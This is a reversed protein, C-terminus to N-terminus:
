TKRGFDMNLRRMKHRLTSPNVGLLRAAGSDGNIKGGTLAVATSIHNTIVRNLSMLKEGLPNMTQPVDSAEPIRDQFRLPGKRDLILTREVLNELERVNGPWPYDSLREIEGRAIGPCIPLGMLRSKKSIFHYLLDPIDACRDRLPPVSVPFVNIRYFLDERFKGAKVMQLLDRHTAIILRVNVKITQSGGIREIEKEQIVRLLKIQAALPLEGIEDLFLTGGQAREFRGRYTQYAGTFSGKEHGFLESDILTEPISGCNVKIFPQIRRKSQNHIATAIVEKGVGTEGLILVTTDEYSVQDILAMTKKLGSEAGIIESGTASRLEKHLFRNEDALLDKIECLEQFRRSNALAIAAPKKLLKLLNLHDAKFRGWGETMLVMSGFSTEEVILRIYLASIKEKGLVSLLTKGLIHDDAQNILLEGSFDKRAIMERATAPLQFRQGPLDGGHHNAHAYILTSLSDKERHLLYADQAPIYDAIYIFCEWLAKEIELRGCIRLAANRFFENKEVM